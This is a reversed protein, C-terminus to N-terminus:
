PKPRAPAEALVKALDVTRSPNGLVTAGAAVSQTVVTNPGIFVDDGVSIDGVICAGPGIEVRSGIVPSRDTGKRLLGITACHRITVDDGISWAGLFFGGHHMIRFRRGVRSNYPLDIGWLAISAQHAFRYALTLPPRLHPRVSMRWNGFRYIALSLFGPSLLDRGHTAFDEAILARFSIGPPNQNRDGLPLAKGPVREFPPEGPPVPAPAPPAPSPNM